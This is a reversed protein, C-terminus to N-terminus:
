WISIHKFCYAFRMHGELEHLRYNYGHSDTMLTLTAQPFSVRNPANVIRSIEDEACHWLKVRELDPARPFNLLVHPFADAGIDISVLSNFAPILTWDVAAPSGRSSTGQIALETRLAGDSTARITTSTPSQTIHLNTAAALRSCPRPQFTDEFNWGLRFVLRLKPAPSAGFVGFLADVVNRALNVTVSIDAIAHLAGILAADPRPMESVPRHPEYSWVNRFQQLSQASCLLPGIEAFGASECTLSRLSSCASACSLRLRSPLTLDALKPVSFGTLDFDEVGGGYNPPQTVTFAVLEPFNGQYGNMIRSPWVVDAVIHLKALRPAVLDLIGRLDDVAANSKALAGINVDLELLRTKTRPLISRLLDINSAYAASDAANRRNNMRLPLRSWLRATEIAVARWGRCTHSASLLDDFVLHQWVLPWIDAPVSSAGVVRRSIAGAIANDFCRQLASIRAALVTRSAEAARDSVAREVLHALDSALNQPLANATSMVPLALHETSYVGDIGRLYFM